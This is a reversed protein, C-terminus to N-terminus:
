ILHEIFLHRFRMIYLSRRAYIQSKKIKEFVSPHTKIVLRRLQRDQHDDECIVDKESDGGYFVGCVIGYPVCELRGIGLVKWCM